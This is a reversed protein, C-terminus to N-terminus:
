EGPILGQDEMLRELTELDDDYLDEEESLEDELLQLKEELLVHERPNLKMGKDLVPVLERFHKVANETDDEEIYVSVAVLHAAFFDAPIEAMELTEVIDEEDMADIDDPYGREVLYNMVETEPLLASMFVSLKVEGRLEQDSEDHDIYYLVPDAPDPDDMDFLFLYNGGDWKGVHILSKDEVDAISYQGPDLPYYSNSFEVSWAEMESGEPAFFEMERAEWGADMFQEMAPPLDLDNIKKSEEPPTDSVSVGLRKIHFLIDPELGQPATESNTETM